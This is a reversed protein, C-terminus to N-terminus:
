NIAWKCGVCLRIILLSWCFFHSFFIAVDPADYFFKITQIYVSIVCSLSLLFVTKMLLKPGTVCMFLRLWLIWILRNLENMENMCVRTSCHAVSCVITLYCNQLLNDFFFFHWFYNWRKKWDNYRNQRWNRTQYEKM